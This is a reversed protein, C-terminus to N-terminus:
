PAQGTENALYTPPVSCAEDPHAEFRAEIHISGGDSAQYISILRRRALELIALFTVVVARVGHGPEFLDEFLARRRTRLVDIVDAIRQQLSVTEAEVSFAARQRARQLVRSVAEVLAFLTPPDLPAPEETDAAPVGRLFVDRGLLPRDGLRAAADRYKQYELLRRVLEARPDVDSEASDDDNPEPPPAPLLMRSKIHVLTAAMLLYESAVDLDLERMTALYELYRETIFAVPLDLIDLEHRRVLHLLLDLPGEFSGVAVRFTPDSGAPVEM